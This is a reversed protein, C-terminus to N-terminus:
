GVNSKSMRLERMLGDAAQRGRAVHYLFFSVFPENLTYLKCFDHMDNRARPLIALVTTLLVHRLM